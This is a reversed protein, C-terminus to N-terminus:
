TTTSSIANAMWHFNVATPPPATLGGHFQTSVAPRAPTATRSPASSRPCGHIRQSEPAFNAMTEMMATLTKLRDPVSIM